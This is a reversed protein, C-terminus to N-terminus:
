TDDKRWSTDPFLDLLWLTEGIIKNATVDDKPTTDALWARCASEAFKIYKRIPVSQGTTHLLRIVEPLREVLLSPPASEKSITSWAESIVLKAVSDYPTCADDFSGDLYNSDRLTFFNQLGQADSQDKTEIYVLASKINNRYWTISNGEEAVFRNPITGDLSDAVILSADSLADNKEHNSWIQIFQRAEEAQLNKIRFARHGQTTLSLVNTVIKFTVAALTSSSM